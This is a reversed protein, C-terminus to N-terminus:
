TIIGRPNVSYDHPLPPQLKHQIQQYKGNKTIKRTIHKTIFLFKTYKVLTLSVEAQFIEFIIQIKARKNTDKGVSLPTSM